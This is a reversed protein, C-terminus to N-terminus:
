KWFMLKDAVKSFLSRYYDVTFGECNYLGEERMWDPMEYKSDTVGLSSMMDFNYM